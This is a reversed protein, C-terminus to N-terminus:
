LGKRNQGEPLVFAFGILESNILFEFSAQYSFIEPFGQEEDFYKRREKEDQLEFFRADGMCFANTYCDFLDELDTNHIPKIVIGDM